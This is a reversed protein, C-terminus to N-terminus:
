RGRSARSDRDDGDGPIKEVRPLDKSDALKERRSKRTKM